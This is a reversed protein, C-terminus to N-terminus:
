AVIYESYTDARRVFEKGTVDPEMKASLLIDNAIVNPDIVFMWTDAINLCILMSTKTPNFELVM